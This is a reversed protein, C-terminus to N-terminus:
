MTSPVLARDLMRVSTPSSAVSPRSAANAIGVRAALTVGVGILSPLGVQPSKLADHVCSFTSGGPLPCNVSPVSVTVMVLKAFELEPVGPEKSQLEFM